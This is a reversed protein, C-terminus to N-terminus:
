NAAKCAAADEAAEDSRTPLFAMGHPSQLGTVIPTIGGLNLDLAGVFGVTAGSADPAGVGASYSTGPIFEAKHIMYVTNAPTDAVLMVGDDSPIFLTDDIQPTGFPSSLPILLVSQNMSGPKHWLVVESDGQSDLLIDNAPTLTMSDPDQLNLKMSAGTVADKATADGALAPTVSVTSGSLWAKVIAPATNPNKSPNSASFYAAGNRFTIDDYGGGAPSPAAFAYIKQERTVPDIVVLNPNADENQMAWLKQTYPNVKLGDNHGVVVYTYVVRGYGDYEVIQNSKGDLGAPDNGDGYAVFVHGNLVAISDPATYKGKVGKAFVTVSYGNEAKPATQALAPIASASLLLTMSLAIRQKM